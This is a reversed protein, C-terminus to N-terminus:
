AQVKKRLDLIRDTAADFSERSVSGDDLSAVLKDVIVEGQTVNRGSALILDMGAQTALLGRNEDNGFDELAGAEIADTVTVGKFQLRGRLEEQIWASSLGAPNKPDMSPYVAWSAMVMDIGSSIAEHYPAEDVNRLTSLPANITVPRIDTNEEAGALGLGPYHKAAAVVGTSKQATFWTTACKSVLDVNDGFSRGYQDLFHGAQRYVGLVPALNSNVHASSLIDGAKKGAQTAAGNPDSSNGIEKASLEPGGPLRNVQGGEQDTMILLPHGGYAPSKTYTDQFNQVVDAINDDINEGFLIIGGVKGQEILELLHSPPKLGPYSFIVHYGVQVEDSGTACQALAPLFTLQALTIWKM